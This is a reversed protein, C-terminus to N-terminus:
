PLGGVVVGHRAVFRPMVYVRWIELCGDRLGPDATAGTFAKWEAPTMAQDFAAAILQGFPMAPAALSGNPATPDSFDLVQDARGRMVLDLADLAPAHPHTRILSIATQVLALADRSSM